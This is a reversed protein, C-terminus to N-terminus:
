VIAESPFMMHDFNSYTSALRIRSCEGDQGGIKEHLHYDFRIARPHMSRAYARSDFPMCRATGPQGIAAETLASATPRLIENVM